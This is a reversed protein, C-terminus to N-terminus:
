TPQKKSASMTNRLQTHYILWCPCAAWDYLGQNGGAEDFNIDIAAFICFWVQHPCGCGVCCNFIIILRSSILTDSFPKIPTILIEDATKIGGGSFYLFYVAAAILVFKHLFLCFGVYSKNYLPLERQLVIDLSDLRLDPVTIAAEWGLYSLNASECVTYKSNKWSSQTWNLLM